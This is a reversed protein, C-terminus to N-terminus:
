QQKRWGELVIVFEGRAGRSGLRELVQSLRGYFKEEFKKTLERAVCARRDGLVDRLAELSEILRHPAEYFVLTREEERLAEIARRRAGPKRPLFGEFVFRDAGFGSVALAAVCASPGPVPTVEIGQAVAESVLAAGPDSVLPTGSDTVLAVSRGGALHAVIAQLKRPGSHAHYSEVPTRIGYHAALIRTRRTDECAILDVRKLVELARAGLDALNGIPTAVVYLTGPREM